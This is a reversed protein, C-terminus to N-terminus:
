PSVWKDNGEFRVNFWRSNSHVMEVCSFLSALNLYDAQLMDLIATLDPKMCTDSVQTTVNAKPQRSSM